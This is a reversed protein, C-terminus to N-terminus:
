VQGSEPSGVHLVTSSSLGRVFHLRLMAERTGLSPNVPSIIQLHVRHFHPCEMSIAPLPSPLLADSPFPHPPTLCGCSVGVKSDLWLLVVKVEHAPGPKRIFKVNLCLSRCGWCTVSGCSDGLGAGGVSAPQTPSNCWSRCPFCIRVKGTLAIQRLM